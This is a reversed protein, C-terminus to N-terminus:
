SPERWVRVRQGADLKHAGATVVREGGALGAGIIAWDGTYAVVKVPRLVVGDEKANIIWVAPQDGQQTLATLPVRAVPVSAPARAVLTATMGLQLEAPPHAISARVRYTRTNTDAAPSVERLTAGLTVGPLSWAEVTLAQGALGTAQNEPVDAVAEMEGLRALRVAPQGAAMVQGPEALVATVVGDADATLEAYQSNNRLVSLSAQLQAVQAKARESQNQARDFAQASAWGGRKLAGARRYESEATVQDAKASALQAETAKVQLDLDAPDLRALPQGATVRQGVEVLRRVIKGPVRFGLDAEIRPRIVAAYRVDPVSPEAVVTSVRVPRPLPAETKPQDCAAVLLALVM